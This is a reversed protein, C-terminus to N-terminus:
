QSSASDPRVDVVQDFNGVDHLDHERKLFYFEESGPKIGLSLAVANWGTGKNYRYKEVVYGTPRGSMEALRLVIYADAPSDFNSLIANLEADDINFRSALKTRLESPDTYAEFDFVNTWGFDGAIAASSFIVSLMAAILLIKFLKM